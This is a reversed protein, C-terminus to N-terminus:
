IWRVLTTRDDRPCAPVAYSALLSLPPVVARSPRPPWKMGAVWRRARRTRGADAPAATARPAPRFAGIGVADPKGLDHQLLRRDLGDRRIVGAKERAPAVHARERRRRELLHQFGPRPEAIVRAGAIQMGAGAGDDFAVAALERCRLPAARAEPCRRRYRPRRNGRDREIRRRARDVAIDFAHDRPQKGDGFRQRAYLGLQAPKRRSSAGCRRAPSKAWAIISRPAVIQVGFFGAQARHGHCSLQAACARPSASVKGRAPVSVRLRAAGRRRKQRAGRPHSQAPASAAPLPGARRCSRLASSATPPSNQHFNQARRRAANEKVAASAAYRKAGCGPTTRWTKM